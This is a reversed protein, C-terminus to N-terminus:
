VGGSQHNKGQPFFPANKVPWGKGFGHRSPLLFGDPLNPHGMLQGFPATYGDILGHLRVSGLVARIPVAGRLPSVNPEVPFPDFRASKAGNVQRQQIHAKPIRPRNWDGDDVAAAWARADGDNSPNVTVFQGPRRRARM